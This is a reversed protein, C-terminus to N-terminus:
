KDQCLNAPLPCLPFITVKHYQCSPRKLTVLGWRHSDHREEFERIARHHVQCTVVNGTWIPQSGTLSITRPDPVAGDMGREHRVQVEAVHGKIVVNLLIDRFGAPSPDKFRNRM